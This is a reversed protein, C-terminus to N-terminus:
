RDGGAAYHVDGVACDLRVVHVFEPRLQFSQFRAPSPRPPLLDYKRTGGSEDRYDNSSEILGHCNLMRVSAIITAIHANNEYQIALLGPFYEWPLTSRM